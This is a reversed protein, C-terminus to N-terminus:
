RGAIEHRYLDVIAADYTALFKRRVSQTMAAMKEMQEPSVEVVAMGHRALEARDAKAQTRVLEREYRGAEVAAQRVVNQDQISLRGFTASNAVVAIASYSHNTVSVSSQVEYLRGVLIQSYFNDEADVKRTKLAEFMEPYPIGVVEAGLAKFTQVFAPEPIVRVPRRELDTAHVFPAGSTTIQRFGNEWWALGTLGHPELRALLARGFQGGLVSDAQRDDRVVFPLDMIEFEPVLHRLAPTVLLMLDPTGTGGAQLAEIQAGPTGPVTDQAVNVSLRGRSERNVIEAFRVMARMTPQDEGVHPRYEAITLTHVSEARAVAPEVILLM